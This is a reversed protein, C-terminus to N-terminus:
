PNIVNGQEDVEGYMTYSIIRRIAKYKTQRRERPIPEPASKCNDCPFDVLSLVQFDRKNKRADKAKSKRCKLCLNQWTFIRRTKAKFRVAYNYYPTDPLAM